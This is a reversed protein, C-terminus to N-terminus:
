DDAIGAMIKLFAKEKDSCDSGDIVDTLAEAKGCALMVPIVQLMFLHSTPIPNGSIGACKALLNVCQNYAKPPLIAKPLLCNGSRIPNPIAEIAAGGGIFTNGSAKTIFHETFLPLAYNYLSRPEIQLEESTDALLVHYPMYIGVHRLGKSHFAGVFAVVDSDPLEPLTITEDAGFDIFTATKNSVSVSLADAILAGGYGALILPTRTFYAALLYPALIKSDSESVGTNELNEQLLENLEQISTIEDLEDSVLKGLIVSNGQPSGSTYLPTTASAQMPASGAMGTPSFMAYEAFFSTVDSKAAAIRQGIEESIQDALLLKQQREEELTRISLEIDEKRQSAANVEDMLLTHKDNLEALRTQARAISEQNERKWKEEALQKYRQSMDTDGIIISEFFTTDFDIDSLYKGANERFEALLTRARAEDCSLVQKVVGVLSENTMNSLFEKIVERTKRDPAPSFSKIRSRIAQAMTENPSRLLTTSNSEPLDLCNYFWHGSARTPRNTQIQTIMSVPIKCLPINSVNAKCKLVNPASSDLDYSHLLICSYHEITGSDVAVLYDHDSTFGNFSFGQILAKKVDEMNRGVSPIFEIWKDACLSCFATGDRDEITWVRVSGESPMKAQPYNLVDWNLPRSDNDWVDIKQWPRIRRDGITAFRFLRLEQSASHMFVVCLAEISEEYM